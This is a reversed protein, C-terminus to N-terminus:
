TVVRLRSDTFVFRRDLHFKIYYGISLGIIAGLERIAHTQWVLWFVTEVGWFIATTVLGMATYLSFKHGHAKVGTGNDYFIWKKDLIYKTILGVITGAGVALAFIVGENGQALVLRQVGLNALTAVIAFAAYRIVLRRLTM